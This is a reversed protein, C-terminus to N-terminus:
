CWGRRAPGPGHCGRWCGYWARLAGCSIGIWRTSWAARVRVLVDHDGVVPVEVDRLQLVEPPGSRDFGITKM